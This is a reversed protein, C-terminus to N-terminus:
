PAPPWSSNFIDRHIYWKGRIRKWVIIYKGEDVVTDDIYLTYNSVEVATNGLADVERIELKAKNIGTDFIAPWFERIATRGIVFDSNPPLLQADKTYLKALAAADQKAFAAMFVENAEEIAQYVVPVKPGPKGAYAISFVSLVLIAVLILQILRKM